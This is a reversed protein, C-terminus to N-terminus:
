HEKKWLRCEKLNENLIDILEEKSSFRIEPRVFKSFQIKIVKGYIDKDFDLIYVELRKKEQINITPNHGINCMGYYTIDDILVKVFYVGNHPLQYKGYDINATPFGITRGIKSGLIVEGSIEYERTLLHNAKDLHGDMLLEKILTTSVRACDDKYYPVLNVKFQKRLDLYDGERKYGFRFDEGCTIIKVNLKKLIKMFENFFVKEIFYYQFIVLYDVDLQNFYEKKQNINTLITGGKNLGEFSIVMTKYGYTKAKKILDQHGIHLGDFNGIIASSKLLKPLLTLDSINFIEM